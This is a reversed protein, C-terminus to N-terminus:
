RAVETPPADLLGDVTAIWQTLLRERREGGGRLIGSLALGRVFEMTLAIVTARGSRGALSHFLRDTVRDSDWRADREVEALTERLKTNTRAVAWLELEALYSPAAAADALARVARDLPDMGDGAAAARWVNEENQRVLAAVTAALLAAHTPFQHLLSGRSVGARAQVALTTTGAVGSDILAAVAADLIATRTDIARAARTSVKIEIPM